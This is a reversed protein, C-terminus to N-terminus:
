GALVLADIFREGLARAVSVRHHGDRIFYFGGVHILEVPPLPTGSLRAVAINVWRQRNHERLPRLNSDFDERRSESGRIRDIPVAQSGLYSRSGEDIRLRFENLDLLRLSRGGIKALLRHLVARRKELIFLHAAQIEIFAKGPNAEITNSFTILSGNMTLGKKNSIVM